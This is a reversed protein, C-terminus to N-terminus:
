GAEMPHVPHPEHPGGDVSADGGGLLIWRPLDVLQPRVALGTPPLAVLVHVVAHAAGLRASRPEVGEQRSDTSAPDGHDHARLEIAQRPRELVEDSEAPFELGEADVQDHEILRNVRGGGSPPGHESHKGHERLEFPIQDPLPDNSAELPGLDEALPDSTGWALNVAGLDQREPVGSETVACDSTAQADRGGQGM